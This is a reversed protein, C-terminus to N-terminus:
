NRATLSPLCLATCKTALWLRDSSMAHGARAANEEGCCWCRRRFLSRLACSEYSGISSPFCSHIPRNRKTRPHASRRTRNETGVVAVKNVIEFCGSFHQLSLARFPPISHRQNAEQNEKGAYATCVQLGPESGAGICSLRISHRVM